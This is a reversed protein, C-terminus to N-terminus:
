WSGEALRCESANPEAPRPILCDTGAEFGMVEPQAGHFRHGRTGCRTRLPLM